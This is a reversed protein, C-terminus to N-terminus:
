FGNNFTSYTHQSTASYGIEQNINKFRHILIFGKGEPCYAGMNYNFQPFLTTVSKLIISKISSM